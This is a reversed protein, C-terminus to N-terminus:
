PSLREGRDREVLRREAAELRAELEALREGVDELNELQQGAQEVLRLQEQARRQQRGRLVIAVWIGGTVGGTLLAWLVTPDLGLMM